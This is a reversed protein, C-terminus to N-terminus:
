SVAIGGLFNIDDAFIDSLVEGTAARLRTLRPAGDPGAGVFIDKVGDRNTDAVGITFGGTFTSEFVPYNKAPTPSTIAPNFDAARFISLQPPAIGIGTGTVISQGLTIGADLGFNGGSVSVGGRDNSNGAYFSAFNVLDAYRFM